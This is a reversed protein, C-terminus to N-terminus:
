VHSEIHLNCSWNQEAGDELSVHLTLSSAGAFDASGIEMKEGIKPDLLKADGTGFAVKVKYGCESRGATLTYKSAVDTLEVDVTRKFFPPLPAISLGNGEFQYSEYDLKMEKSAAEDPFVPKISATGQWPTLPAAVAAGAEKESDTSSGADATGADKDGCGALSLLALAILPASVYRLALKM